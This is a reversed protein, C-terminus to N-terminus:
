FIHKDRDCLSPGELVLGHKCSLRTEWSTWHSWPKWTRRRHRQWWARGNTRAWWTWGSGCSCHVSNRKLMEATEDSCQSTWLPHFSQQDYFTENGHCGWCKDGRHHQYESDWIDAGECSIEHVVHRKCFALHHTPTKSIYVCIFGPSLVVVM